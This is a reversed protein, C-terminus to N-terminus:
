IEEALEEVLLLLHKVLIYCKHIAQKVRSWYRRIVNSVKIYNEGIKNFIMNTKDRLITAYKKICGTIKKM